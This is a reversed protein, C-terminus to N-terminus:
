RGRPPGFEDPYKQRLEEWLQVVEASDAAAVQGDPLCRRGSVVTAVDALDAPARDDPTLDWTQVLGDGWVARVQRGGDLFAESVVQDGQGRGLPGALRQGSPVDWVWLDNATATLVWKGDPSWAARVLGAPPGLSPGVTLGAREDVDWIRLLRGNTDQPNYTALLHHGDPSFDLQGVLYNDLRLPQGVPSGTAVDWVGLADDAAAAVLRGNPSFAVKTIATGLSLPAGVPKGTTTDWVQATGQPVGQGPGPLSGATVLREGTPSFAVANVRSSPLPSWPLEAGRADWVRVRSEGDEGPAFAAVRGGTRSLVPGRLLREGRVVDGVPEGTAPDWARWSWAGPRKRPVEENERAVALALRGDASVVVENAGPLV